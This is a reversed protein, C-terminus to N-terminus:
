WRKKLSGTKEMRKKRLRKIALSDVTLSIFVHIFASPFISGTYLTFAGFLIGMIFSGGAEGKGKALHVSTYISTMVVIAPWSGMLRALTFLLYGRFCFEYAALYVVWSLCNMMMNFADWKEPKALPINEIAEPSKSYVSLVPFLLSCIVFPIIYGIFSSPLLVGYDGPSRKLCLAILILSFAGLLVASVVRKLYVSSSQHLAIGLKKVIFTYLLDYHHLFYLITFTLLVTIPEVFEPKWLITM